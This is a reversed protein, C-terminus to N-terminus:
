INFIHDLYKNVQAEKKLSDIGLNKFLWATKDYKGVHKLLYKEKGDSTTLIFHDGKNEINAKRVFDLTTVGAGYSGKPIVVRKSLAYEATHIPQEYLIISKGIEPIDKKTAFSYAKGNAVLRIDYHFGAREADHKQRTFLIQGTYM